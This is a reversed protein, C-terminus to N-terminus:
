LIRDQMYVCKMLFYYDLRSQLTPILISGAYGLILPILVSYRSITIRAAKFSLETFSYIELSM